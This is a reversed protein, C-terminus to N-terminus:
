KKVYYGDLYIEYGGEVGDNCNCATERKDGYGYIEGTWEDVTPVYQWKANTGQSITAETLPRPLGSVHEKMDRLEWGDNYDTTYMFYLHSKTGCGTNLEGDYELRDYWKAMKYVRGQYTYTFDQPHSDKHSYLVIMDTVPDSNQTPDYAAFLYIYAGCTGANLDKPLRYDYGEAVPLINWAPQGSLAFGQIYFDDSRNFEVWNSNSEDYYLLPETYSPNFQLPIADKGFSTTYITTCNTEDKRWYVKITHFAKWERPSVKREAKECHKKVQNILDSEDTAAITFTDYEDTKLEDGFISFLDNMEKAVASQYTLDYRHLRETEIRISCTYQEGKHCSSLGLCLAIALFSFLISKKM